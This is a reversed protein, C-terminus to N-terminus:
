LGAEGAGTSRFFFVTNSFWCFRVILHAAPSRIGLGAPQVRVEVDRSVNSSNSESSIIEWTVPFTVQSTPLWSGAFPNDDSPLISRIKTEDLINIKQQASNWVAYYTGGQNVAARNDRGSPSADHRQVRLTYTAGWKYEGEKGPGVLNQRGGLIVRRYDLIWKTCNRIKLIAM